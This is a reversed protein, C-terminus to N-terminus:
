LPHTSDISSRRPHYLVPVQKEADRKRRLGVQKIRRKMEFTEECQKSCIEYDDCQFRLEARSPSGCIKAAVSMQGAGGGVAGPFRSGAGGTPTTGATHNLGLLQNTLNAVAAELERIRKQAAFITGYRKHQRSVLQAMARNEARASTSAKGGDSSSLHAVLLLAPLVLLRFSAKAARQKM